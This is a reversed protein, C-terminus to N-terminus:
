TQAPRPVRGTMPPMMQDGGVVLGPAVAKDGVKHGVVFGDLHGEEEASVVCTIEVDPVLKALLIAEMLTLPLEKMQDSPPVRIPVHPFMILEEARKVVDRKLALTMVVAGVVCM